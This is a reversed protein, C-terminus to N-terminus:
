FQFRLNFQIMRGNGNQANLRGFNSNTVNSVPNSFNTHNTANLLDVAFRM